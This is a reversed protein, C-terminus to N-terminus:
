VLSYHRTHPTVVLKRGNSSILYYLEKQSLCYQQEGDSLLVSCVRELFQMFCLVSILGNSLWVVYM